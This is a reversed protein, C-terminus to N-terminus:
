TVQPALFVKTLIFEIFVNVVGVHGATWEYVVARLEEEFLIETSHKALLEDCEDRSLLLNVNGTEQPYLSVQAWYSVYFPLSGPRETPSDSCFLIIYIGTYRSQVEKLFYKRFKNDRYVNQAEDMLIFQRTHQQPWGTWGMLFLRFDWLPDRDEQTWGKFSFVKVSEDLRHRDTIYRHLLYCLTSKGSAPPGQM